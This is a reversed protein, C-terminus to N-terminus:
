DTYDRLCHPCSVILSNSAEKLSIKEYIQKRCRYCKGDAPAFVPLKHKKCYQEQAKIKKQLEM